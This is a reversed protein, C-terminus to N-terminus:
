LISYTSPWPIVSKLVTAFRPPLQGAVTARQSASRRGHFHICSSLSVAQPSSNCSNCFYIKTGVPCKENCHSGLHLSALKMYHNEINLNLLLMPTCTTKWIATNLQWCQLLLYIKKVVTTNRNDTNNSALHEQRMISHM